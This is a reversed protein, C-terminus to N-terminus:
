CPTIEMVIELNAEANALKGRADLVKDLERRYLYNKADLQTDHFLGWQSIKHERSGDLLIVTYETERLVETPVIRIADVPTWYKM